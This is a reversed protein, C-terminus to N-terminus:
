AALHAAARQKKKQKKKTPRDVNKSVVDPVVNVGALRGSSPCANADDEHRTSWSNLAAAAAALAM